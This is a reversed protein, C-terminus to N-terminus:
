TEEVALSASLDRYAAVQALAGAGRKRSVPRRM